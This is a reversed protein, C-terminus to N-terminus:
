RLLGRMGCRVSFMLLIIPVIWGIAAGAPTGFIVKGEPIELGSQRFYAYALGILSLGFMHQAFRSRMLLLLSGLVAGGVSITWGAIIDYPLTDLYQIAAADMGSLYHHDRTNTMLYDFVGFGSWVLSLIAVLRLTVITLGPAVARGAEEQEFEDM